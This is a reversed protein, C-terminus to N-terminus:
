AAWWTGDAHPTVRDFLEAFRQPAETHIPVVQTPSLATVLRRLDGVSAHGSTHLSEFVIQAAALDSRLRQGSPQALYGDWMSWLVRAASTLVGSRILERTTSAPVYLLFREHSGVLEDAFVRIDRIARVREFEGTEKVLVRQRQPVYVRYGDFGPQPITSRAAAAVSAAYLDTVLVRGSRRAARFATVLRDVNQASGLVTVAGDTSKSTAALERELDAESACRERASGVSDTSDAVCARLHTGESILVDIPTPPDALLREFLAAKRGHGRFDGTYFVRKDDVEVLMSYSDFASHDVLYPTVTFPGISLPERDRLHGAARIPRTIPSFFAAAELIAAADRGIYVPVDTLGDVLGYHDLHPHSILVALLPGGFSPMAVNDAPAAWLPRGLDLAIRSGDNAEIEVCNGGVEHAGRHIRLRL